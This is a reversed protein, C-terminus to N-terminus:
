AIQRQEEWSESFSIDIILFISIDLAFTVQAKCTTPKDDGQKEISGKAEITITVGVLGGLLEAHGRFLIIGTAIVKKSSDAYIEVSIMFLISVNGIVPLGVTVQAGFGFKMTISVLPSTDAALMLDVNGVAYISGAGVSVCMVQIGGHFKFFAGATPLLQKPDTTVKLAANFYMGIALSAELRLPTQPSDYLAGFPFRVLPIDKSAEFKYEWVNANNSMAVKLGKKLADKYDGTSVAALIELIQIVPKLADSFEIEPVPLNAPDAEKEGGFNTESGKQANFNGKIIMVRELPGLDIAMAMNNLKGKWTNGLDAAFSDIDFDYKGIYSKNANKPDSKATYEIYVKFGETDILPYNVSPLDFRFANNLLEDGKQKILKYGQDVLKGAEDKAKIELIELVDKGSDLIGDDMVKSFAKLANGGADKGNLLSIAAGFNTDADGINPFIGVTKLLRSSDAMLPPTKSLLSDIGVKFSPTLFLVKQSNLNQLFGFNLTDNAPNRLIEMPHAIRLLNKGMEAPDAGKLAQIWKGIRILPVSINEDLPAVTGDKRSHMVMSWSGEKPLVVSGRAAAVFIESSGVANISSSVDFQSIKMAQNSGAIKVSCNVSGGISGKQSKLLTDFQKVSIPKGAPKLQVFGLVGKSPVRNNSGGEVVNELEVDADFTLGRLSAPLPGTADEHTVEIERINKINFLGKVMGPHMEYPSDHTVLQIQGAGDTVKEYYTFDFQGNGEAKWGSDIRGVYGNGLRFLTITRVVHIGWPYIVSKVQVVEHSTRGTTVNFLAQSTEAFVAKENHWDSFINAGYGSLGAKILPVRPRSTDAPNSPVAFEGNFIKTPSDALTSAQVDTGFMDLVNYLQITFGEFLDSDGEKISTGAQLELQIGGNIYNNFVPSVNKISPKKTQNSFNDLITFALMGFPLNFFAYTKRDIKNEFSQQLYKALPIPSLAVPKECVNGIRTPIGDDKYYNFGLPPDGIVTAPTFNFVPEWAIQPLTFARANYGAAVVDMGEVSIPFLQGEQENVPNGRVGWSRRMELNGSYAVGMQNAKSSVDVLTFDETILRNIGDLLIKLRENGRFSRASMTTQVDSFMPIESESALKSKSSFQPFVKEILQPNRRIKKANALDEREVALAAALKAFTFSLGVKNFEEVPKDWHINAVLWIWVHSGRQKLLLDNRSGFQHMLTGLNAAYPDPLTPLYSYLGFNLHLDGYIVGQYDDSLVGFLIAANPPTVTFLANHLALAFPKIVPIKDDALKNDWLINDDYITVSKKIKGLAFMMASNKSNVAVAEGNVKLPRDIKLSADTFTLLLEDGKATTNFFFSSKNKFNLEANSGYPNKDDRWLKLHHYSNTGNSSLDTISIRGPESILFPNVNFVLGELGPWSNILGKDLEQIMGGNGDAEYPNTIDIKAAPISWWSNKVRATGSIQLFPSESTFITFETQDSRVPIALRNLTSNYVAQQNGDFTFNSQQGFITNSCNGLGIIQKGSGNFWLSFNEPLHFEASRADAGFPSEPDSDEVVKQELELDLQVKTQSHVTLKGDLLFPDADLLIQGGKVRLGAFFGEPAVPNFIRTNIWVSTPVIKYNRSIQLPTQGFIYRHNRLFSAKFLIAPLAQGEIYLPILNEVKIFDFYIEKGGLKDFPGFTKKIRAGAALHPLAGKIQTTRVPINRSIFHLDTEENPENIVENAIEQIEALRKGSVTRSLFSDSNEFSFKKPKLIVKQHLLSQALSKQLERLDQEKFEKSIKLQGTLDSLMASLQEKEM